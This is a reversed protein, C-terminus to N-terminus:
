NTNTILSDFLAKNKKSGSNMLIWVYENYGGLLGQQVCITDQIKTFNSQYSIRKEPNETRLSDLYIESLSDLRSNCCVWKRM